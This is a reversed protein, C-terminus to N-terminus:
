LDVTLGIVALTVMAVLGGTTGTLDVVRVGGGSVVVVMDATEGVVTEVDASSTVVEVLRM